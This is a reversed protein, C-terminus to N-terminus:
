WEEFDNTGFNLPRAKFPTIRESM